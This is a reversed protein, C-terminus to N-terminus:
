SDCQVKVTGLIKDIMGMSAEDSYTKIFSLIHEGKKCAYYDQYVITKGVEITVKYHGFTQGSITEADCKESFKMNLQSSELSKKAHYLYDCGTKIGPYLSTNEATSVINANMKGPTGPPYQFFSFLTLTKALAADIMTKMNENNGSLVQNGQKYMALIEKASQSYWGEPKEVVLGFLENRYTKNDASTTIASKEPEANAYACALAALSFIAPKRIM